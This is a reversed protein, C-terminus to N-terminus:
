WRVRRWAARLRNAGYPIALEPIRCALEYSSLFCVGPQQRLTQQLLSDLAELTSQLQGDIFNFRHTELLAPEGREWKRGIKKLVEDPRHGLVPEFYVDRVLSVMGDPLKEGNTYERDPKTLKGEVDRGTFRRGPTILVEIGAHAYVREVDANWVFTPPVVVKPSRAFCRHFREFEEEVAREIAALSLPRSPLAHVADIWRSQIWSPLRETRWGDEELWKVVARDRKWLAMFNDPWFHALGHLQLDFVGEEEGKKLADVIPLYGPEDLYRAHYDGTEAIKVPDPVSLVVGLTMVPPRGRDDQYRQLLKRISDLAQVQHAPGPGWDDSEIILVPVNIAPAMAKKLRELKVSM